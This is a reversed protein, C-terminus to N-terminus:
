QRTIATLTRFIIRFDGSLSRNDVYREYLELKRPLIEEVYTREADAVNSLYISENVYEIAAIDTIGPRISLVKDKLLEPYTAVYEPVEPRPGVISMDGVLVNLLQPLEDLKTRRMWKGARTVRPDSNATIKPGLSEADNTMTRFKLMEFLRGNLGVRTQRFIAPGKSDLKVVIALIAMVPWLLALGTLAFLLDFLRKM